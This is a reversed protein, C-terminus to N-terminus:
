VRGASGIMRRLWAFPNPLRWSHEGGVRIERRQFLAWAGLVLVLTAAALAALSGWELGNIAQGGQYYYLPTFEVFAQLDENINALGLLLFNAVLLAGTLMSALRGAPLVMSLLLALAGFLVLQVFLTVFPQLLEIWTVEMGVSGSPVAWSLWGVLLIIVTAVVFGLLRGCFLATRSVPHALVLDLIGREEDGVLLKAAAGIAFIGVIVSMYSFYYTDLYGAPTAIAQISDFFALLEQPYSEIMQQLEEMQVITDYFSVMMLGYLGLGISWGITQGRLRRLTHRFETWM